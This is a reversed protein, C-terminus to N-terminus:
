SELNEKRYFDKQSSVKEFFRKVVADVGLSIEHYWCDEFLDVVVRPDWNQLGCEKILDELLDQKRFKRQWELEDAERWYADVEAKYHDRKEVFEKWVEDDMLDYVSPVRLKAPFLHERPELSPYYYSLPDKLYKYDNM